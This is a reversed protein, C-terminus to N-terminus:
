AWAPGRHRGRRLGLLHARARLCDLCEPPWCLSTAWALSPTSKRATTTPNSKATTIRRPRAPGM